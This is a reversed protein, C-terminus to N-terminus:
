YVVKKDKRFQWPAIPKTAAWLGVKQKMAKEQLRLLETDKSYKYRWAYGKEVLLKNFNVKGQLMVVGLVRRYKDKGHQQVTVIKQLCYKTTFETAQLGFDQAKEPCDIGYLRIKIKAEGVLLEITDGDKVAIIRGQLIQSWATNLSLLFILFILAIFRSKLQPLSVKKNMNM